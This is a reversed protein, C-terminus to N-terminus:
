IVQAYGTIPYPSNSFWLIREKWWERKIDNRRKLHIIPYEGLTVVSVQDIPKDENVSYPIEHLKRKWVVKDKKLLRVQYDPYNKRDPLNIRPFRFSDVRHKLIIDKIRGLFTVNFIEDVDIHLVWTFKVPVLGHAYNREEAFSGSFKKVHVRDAYYEAIEVTRDKSEGDVVVIYDVYPRLQKLCNAIRPEENKTLVIACVKLEEM